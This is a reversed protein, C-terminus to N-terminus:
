RKAMADILTEVSPIIADPKIGSKELIEPNFKGTQVLVGKLGCAQAGGVDGEVDDGIMAVEEPRCGLQSLAMDFFAPAPKGCVVAETMAAHELLAVFSGADLRLGDEARFYRSRSMTVLEAENMLIQFAANLREFSFGSGMDGVVVAEAETDSLEFESFDEELAEPILLCCRRIGKSQLYAVAAYPATFVQEPRIELGMTRIRELVSRRSRSTINTVFRHPVGRTELTHVFERAGPILENGVYITGDLDILLGKLKELVAKM